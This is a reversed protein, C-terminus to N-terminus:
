HATTDSRLLSMLTALVAAISCMSSAVVLASVVEYQMSFM